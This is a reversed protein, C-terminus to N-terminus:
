YVIKLTILRFSTILSSIVSFFLYKKRKNTNTIVHSWICIEKLVNEQNMKQQIIFIQNFRTSTSIFINKIKFCLKNIDM